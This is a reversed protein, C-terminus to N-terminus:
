FSIYGLLHTSVEIMHKMNATTYINEQYDSDQLSQCSTQIHLVVSTASIATQKPTDRM